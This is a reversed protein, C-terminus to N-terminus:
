VITEPDPAYLDKNCQEVCNLFPITVKFTFYGLAKFAAMLYENEIYLKCAQVLLNSLSTEELVKKYQPLCDLVSAASYRLKKSM